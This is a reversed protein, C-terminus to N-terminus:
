IGFKNGGARPMKMNGRSFHTQDGVHYFAHVRSVRNDLQLM